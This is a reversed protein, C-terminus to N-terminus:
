VFNNRGLFFADGIGERMAKLGARTREMSTMTPDFSQIETVGEKAHVKLIDDM